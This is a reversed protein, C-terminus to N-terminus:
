VKEYHHTHSTYTKGNPLKVTVYAPFQFGDIYCPPEVHVVEYSRGGQLTGHDYSYRAKILGGQPIDNHHM